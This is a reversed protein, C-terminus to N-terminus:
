MQDLRNFHLLIEVHWMDICNCLVCANRLVFATGYLIYVCIFVSPCRSLKSFIDGSSILSTIACDTWFACVTNCLFVSHFVM